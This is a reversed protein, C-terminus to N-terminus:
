GVKLLFDTLRFPAHVGPAFTILQGFIHDVVYSNVLETDSILM